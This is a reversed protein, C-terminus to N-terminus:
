KAADTNQPDGNSTTYRIGGVIVMIVAAFGAIRLLDELVALAILWVAGLGTGGSSLGGGTSGQTNDIPTKTFQVCPTTPPTTPPPNVCAPGTCPLYAYWPSLGFFDSYDCGAPATSGFAYNSSQAPKPRLVQSAGFGILGASVLLMLWYPAILLTKKTIKM